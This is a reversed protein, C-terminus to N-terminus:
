HDRRPRQFVRKRFEILHILALGRLVAERANDLDLIISKESVIEEQELSDTVRDGALMGRRIM